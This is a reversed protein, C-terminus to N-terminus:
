FESIQKDFEDMIDMEDYGQAVLKDSIKQYKSDSIGGIWNNGKIWELVLNEAVAKRIGQMGAIKEVYKAYEAKNNNMMELRTM